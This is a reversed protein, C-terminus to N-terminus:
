TDFSSRKECRQNYLLVNMEPYMFVYFCPRNHSCNLLEWCRREAEYQASFFDPKVMAIKSDLLM